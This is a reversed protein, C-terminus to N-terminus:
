LCRGSSTTPPITKPESLAIKTCRTKKLPRSLSLLTAFSGPFTFLMNKVSTALRMTVSYEGTEFGSDAVTYNETQQKNDITMIPIHLREM